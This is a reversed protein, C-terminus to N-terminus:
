QIKRRTTSTLAHELEFLEKIKKNGYYINKHINENDCLGIIKVQLIKRVDYDNGNSIEITYM